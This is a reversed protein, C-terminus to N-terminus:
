AKFYRAAEHRLHRATRDGLAAITIQPNVGLSTPFLSGDCVFLNELGHLRGWSDTASHEPDSGMAATGMQHASFVAMRNPEIPMRDIADLDGEARITLGASHPLLVERAGAALYIRALAKLGTRFKAQDKTNVWYDIEPLGWQDM